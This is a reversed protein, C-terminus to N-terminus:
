RVGELKHAVAFIRRFAFVTGFPQRPYAQLLARGYAAVFDAREGEDKLVEFVPLLATGKTWELVPEVQDGGPDLVHQYTTKWADVDCGLAALLFLYVAPESVTEGRGLRPLLEAARSSRTAVERLLTHSPANFNGPVQMAFWGGPALAKIWGPILRPHSPVWQLLSNTIIVDISAGVQAPDWSEVESHVWEVRGLSDNRRAQDLMPASSDLGIIRARPWRKALELTLAGSGCGLDVVIAPSIAGVRVTLDAFPRRRHNRFKEYQQPNWTESVTAARWYRKIDLYEISPKREHGGLGSILDVTDDVGPVAFPGVEVDRRQVDQRADYSQGAVEGYSSEGPCSTACVSTVLPVMVLRTSRSAARPRTLRPGSGLSRRPTLTVSVEAPRATTSVAM